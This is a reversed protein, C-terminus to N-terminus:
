NAGNSARVVDLADFRFDVRFVHQVSPLHYSQMSAAVCSVANADLTAVASLQPNMLKKVLDFIKEDSLSALNRQAQLQASLRGAMFLTQEKSWGPQVQSQLTEYTAAVESPEVVKDMVILPGDSTAGQNVSISAKGQILDCVLDDYGTLDLSITDPNNQANIQKTLDARIQQQLFTPEFDQTAVISDPQISFQLRKDTWKFGLDSYANNAFGKLEPLFRVKVSYKNHEKRRMLRLFMGKDSPNACYDFFNQFSPGSNDVVVQARFRGARTMNDFLFHNQADVYGNVAQLGEGGDVSVLRLNKQANYRNMEASGGACTQAFAASSSLLASCLLTLSFLSKM